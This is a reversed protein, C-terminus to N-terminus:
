RGRGARRDGGVAGAAHMAPRDPHDYRVVIDADAATAADHGLLPPITWRDEAPTLRDLAAQSMALHVTVDFGLGRGLLMPGAITLVQGDPADIRRARASRDEVEDWLKPLWRGNERLGRVVERDLAGFDFWNARYSEQDTRGHEFRLSAPRVFDHLSLVAAPRGEVRLRAAVQEALDLPAAADAASIAVCVRGHHGAAREGIADALVAPSIPTFMTMLGTEPM